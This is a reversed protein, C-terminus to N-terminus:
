KWRERLARQVREEITEEITKEGLKKEITRIQERELRAMEEEYFRMYLQQGRRWGVYWVMVLGFLAVPAVVGIGIGQFLLIIVIILIAFLFVAVDLDWRAAMARDHARQAATKEIEPDVHKSDESIEKDM